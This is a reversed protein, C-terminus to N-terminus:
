ISQLKELALLGGTLNKVNQYGNQKLISQATESRLGASCIVIIEENYQWPLQSLSENLKGVPINIGGINRTYYEIKERVDLLNLREHDHLRVAFERANINLSSNHSHNNHNSM